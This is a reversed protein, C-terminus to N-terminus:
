QLLLLDRLVVFFARLVRHLFEGIAKGGFDILQDGGLFLIEHLDSKQGAREFFSDWRIFLDVEILGIVSGLEATGRWTATMISPLPRQALCRPRGRTAPWRLPTSITRSSIAAHPALPM